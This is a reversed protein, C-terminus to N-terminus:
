SPKIIQPVFSWKNSPISYCHVGQKGFAYVQEDVRCIGDNFDDKQKLVAFDTVQQEKWNFLLSGKSSIIMFSDDSVEIAWAPAFLQIGYNKPNKHVVPEWQLVHEKIGGKVEKTEEVSVNESPSLAEKADQAFQLDARYMKENHLALPVAYLYKQKVICIIFGGLKPIGNSISEMTNNATDFALIQSPRSDESMECPEGAVYITDKLDAMTIKRYNFPLKFVPAFSMTEPVYKYIINTGKDTGEYAYIDGFSSRFSRLEQWNDIDINEAPNKSPSAKLMKSPSKMVALPTSSFTQNQYLWLMKNVGDFKHLVLEEKEPLMENPEPSLPPAQDEQVPEEPKEAKAIKVVFKKNIFDAVEEENFNNVVTFTYNSRGKLDTFVEKHQELKQQLMSCYNDLLDEVGLEMAKTILEMNDGSGFLQTLENYEETRRHIDKVDGECEKFKDNFDQMMGWAKKKFTSVTDLKRKKLKEIMADFLNEITKSTKDIEGEISEKKGKINTYFGLWQKSVNVFDTKYDEFRERLSEAKLAISEVKHKKHYVLCKECCVKQDNACYFANEYGPHKVCFREKEKGGEAVSARMICM